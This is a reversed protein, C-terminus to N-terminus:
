EEDGSEISTITTVDVVDEVYLPLDYAGEDNGIFVDETLDEVEYKFGNLFRGKIDGVSVPNNKPVDQLNIYLIAVM